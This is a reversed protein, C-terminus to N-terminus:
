RKVEKGELAHVFDTEEKETNSIADNAKKELVKTEKKRTFGFSIKGDNEKKEEQDMDHVFVFPYWGDFPDSSQQGVNQMSRERQM